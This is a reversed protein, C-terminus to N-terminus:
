RAAEKGDSKKPVVHLIVRREPDLVRQAVALLHPPAAGLYRQLDASAWGPDGQSSQYRNLLQARTALSQLRGVFAAEYQNKARDLEAQSVAESRLEAIVADIEREITDLEVGPRVLVEINFHSSLSMSAQYASVSKAIKKDYVLSKYLRSAKGTTMIESLLDLEADGPAYAAPSHWAMIVKPLTM